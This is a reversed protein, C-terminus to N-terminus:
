KGYQKKLEEIREASGKPADDAFLAIQTAADANGTAQIGAALQFFGTAMWSSQGYVGDAEGDLWGLEILRKQVVAAARIYTTKELTAPLVKFSELAPKEGMQTLESTENEPLGFMESLTVLRYGRAVAGPIFELLKKLDNDTTHFLYIKGPKLNNYLQELSDTSGSQSWMAIGNYGLQNVYAHVRQDNREDGGKPRFFHQTYNVGLVENVKQMQYWIESTMRDDDNHYMGAHNYTHNGIEMGNEYAYRLAAAVESKELNSGIPFITLKGGNNVACQIIQQFNGGQFCDDVTIAIVNETTEAKYVVPLYGDKTEPWCTLKSPDVKSYDATFLPGTEMGRAAAAYAEDFNFSGTPVYASPAETAQPLASSQAATQGAGEQVSAGTEQQALADVNAQPDPAVTEQAVTEQAQAAAEQTAQLTLPLTQATDAGSGGKTFVVVLIIAVVGLIAIPVFLKLRKRMRRKRRMELIKRRQAQTLPRRNPQAGRNQTM